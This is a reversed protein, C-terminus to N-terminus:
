GPPGSSQRVELRVPLTVSRVPAVPDRKRALFTEGLQQGIRYADVSVTTLPPVWLRADEIDDFGVVSVDQGVTRGMETLGLAAGAAVVDCNCVLGTIRPHRAMLTMAAAKADAKTEPCRWVLPAGPGAALMASAYGGIRQVVTPNDNEDGLFAIRRHGLGLLHRTALNVGYASDIGVHDFPQDAFPRMLTVTAPSDAAVRAVTEARTGRAPVWLLGGIGGGLLTRLYKEQLAPDDRGDLVYVLHGHEELAATVGRVVEANFPNAINNILFGIDSSVGSRMAAARRDQVYNVQEAVRMVKRRTEESIRGHGRLAQSVTSTSVGAARAVTRITPRNTM